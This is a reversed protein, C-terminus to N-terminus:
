FINNTEIIRCNIKEIFEKDTIEMFPTSTTTNKAWKTIIEDILSSFESLDYRIFNKINNAFQRNKNWEMISYGSFTTVIGIVTGIIIELKSVQNLIQTITAIDAM